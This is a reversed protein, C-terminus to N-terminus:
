ATTRNGSFLVPPSNKCHPAHPKLQAELSPFALGLYGPISCHFICSVSLLLPFAPIAAVNTLIRSLRGKEGSAAHFFTVRCHSYLLTVCPLCCGAFGEEHQSPIWLLYRAVVSWCCYCLINFPDKVDSTMHNAFLIWWWYMIQDWCLLLKKTLAESPSISPAFYLEFSSFLGLCWM